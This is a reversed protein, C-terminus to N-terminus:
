FVLELWAAHREAQADRVPLPPRRDPGSVRRWDLDRHLGPRELLRRRDLLGADDRYAAAREPRERDLGYTMYSAGAFDRLQDDDYVCPEDLVRRLPPLVGILREYRRWVRQPAVEKGAPDPPLVVVVDIDSIGPVLDSTGTGSRAYAAADAEGLTLLTTFARTALRYALSWVELL